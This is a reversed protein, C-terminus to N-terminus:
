RIKRLSFALQSDVMCFQSEASPKIPVKTFLRYGRPDGPTLKLAHRGSPSQSENGCDVWADTM